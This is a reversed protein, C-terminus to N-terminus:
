LIYITVNKVGWNRAEQKTEYCVDVRNGKIAGGCDEAVAYGYGPIYVRTGYPIVNPDVALVGYRAQTGTATIGNCGPDLPTYATARVNLAYNYDIVGDATSVM